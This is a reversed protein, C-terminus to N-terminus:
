NNDWGTSLSGAKCGQPCQCWETSLQTIGARGRSGVAAGQLLLFGSSLPQSHARSWRCSRLLLVGTRATGSPSLLVSRFAGRWDGWLISTREQSSPHNGEGWEHNHSCCSSFYGRSCWAISGARRALWATIEYESRAVGVYFTCNLNFSRTTLLM